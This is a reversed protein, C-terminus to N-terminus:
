IYKNWCCRKFKKESGCPCPKNRMYNKRKPKDKKSLQEAEKETIRVYGKEKMEEDSTGEPFRHINGTSAQM